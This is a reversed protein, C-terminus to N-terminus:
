SLIKLTEKLKTEVEKWNDLVEENKFRIVQYEMEELVGQRGEDLEKRHLHIGGDLEVILRKEACYFDVIYFSKEDLIEQYEIIFQRLFKKGYFRKNRVKEWFFNEAPTQNKRLQRAFALAQKYRM